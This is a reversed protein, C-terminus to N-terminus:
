RNTAHSGAPTFQINKSYVTGVTIWWTKFKKKTILFWSRLWTIKFSMHLLDSLVDVRNPGVQLSSFLIYEFPRLYVKRNAILVEEHTVASVFAM